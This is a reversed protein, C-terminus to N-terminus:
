PGGGFFPALQEIWVREDVVGVHRYQVTGAADIVYTEPAGYVGLDFGFDGDIDVVTEAYPNGLEELWTLAKAPDDKYNLGYITVGSEALDLLYPHEVRCSFCWTAWVNLLAPKGHWQGASRRYEGGLVQLDFEPLPQGVRASPLATPDLALGRVLLLVLAAFAVLPLFRKLLM